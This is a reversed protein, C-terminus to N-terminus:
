IFNLDISVYGKNCGVPKAGQNLARQQFYQNMVLYWFTFRNLEIWNLEIWHFWIWGMGIWHLWISACSKVKWDDCYRLPRMWRHVKRSICCKKGPFTQQLQASKRFVPNFAMNLTNSNFIGVQTCWNLQATNVTNDVTSIDTYHHWISNEFEAVRSVETRIPEILWFFHNDHSLYSDMDITSRNELLRLCPHRLLHM